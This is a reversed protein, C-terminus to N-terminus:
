KWKVVHNGKVLFSERAMKALPKDGYSDSYFADIEKDAYEQRFRIAKEEGKCNEGSYKGTHKDVNSGIPKCIQLRKCAEEILFEPSATIVLDDDRKQKLYWPAIKDIHTDWFKKIQEDINNVRCL